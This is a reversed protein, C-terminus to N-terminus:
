WWHWDIPWPGVVRVQALSPDYHNDAMKEETVTMGCQSFPNVRRPECALYKVVRSKWSPVEHYLKSDEPRLTSTLPRLNQNPTARRM